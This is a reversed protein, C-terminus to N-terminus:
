TKEPVGYFSTYEALNCEDCIIHDHETKPYHQRINTYHQWHSKEEKSM